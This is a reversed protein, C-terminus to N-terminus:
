PLRELDGMSWSKDYLAKKPGYFRALVEFAGHADTPIWNSEGTTPPTPGFYLDVSGDPNTKLGPTQSSRGMWRANRIFTHTDRNYVTMSWYQTVPPNAPVHLRYSANGDLPHGEKDRTTMLYYQSEGIHKASFFAMMYCTGRNDIPYSDPVHFSNVINQHTEETAPFFWHAGGAYFPALRDYNYLLWSHADRVAIYLIKETAPDPDFKKGREIGITKLPDIMAKDRELWPEAQIMTDLSRYFNIDYPISADYIDNSADVFVTAPPHTAQSLPYVRVRRSYDVARAVDGDSGSRLVSRLLAYGQYTDSAMPIYGPPIRDKDYGPPLVLYKGGKGKDVGGPGVDEIAAQWYNMISGNFVGSDAPPIELVVPGVEKTNFFPMLYIVDPNPTLTQNKWDLLKPWWVVQNFSGNLRTMAAVMLQYNVAPMGWIAAAVARNYTLQEKIDAAKFSPQASDQGSSATTTSNERCSASLLLIVAAPLFMTHNKM